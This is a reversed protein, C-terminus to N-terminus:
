SYAGSPANGLSGVGLSRVAISFGTFSGLLRSGEQDHVLSYMRARSARQGQFEPMEPFESRAKVYGLCM